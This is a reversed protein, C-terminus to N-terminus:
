SRYVCKSTYLQHLQGKLSFQVTFQVMKKKRSFKLHSRQFSSSYNSCQSLYSQERWVLSQIM